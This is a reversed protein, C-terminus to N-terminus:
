RVQQCLLEFQRLSMLQLKIALPPHYDRFHQVLHRRLPQIFRAHALLPGGATMVLELEEASLGHPEVAARRGRLHDCLIRLERRRLRALRQALPPDVNALLQVLLRRFRHPPPQDLDLTHWLAAIARYEHPTFRLYGM